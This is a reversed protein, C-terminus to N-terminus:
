VIKNLPTEDECNRSIRYCHKLLDQLQVIKQQAQQDAVSMTLLDESALIILKKRARTISVNLREPQFYFDIINALFSVDNSVLSLLIVDREQGQMREVTDVVIETANDLERLLARKILNGQARFPTVIGIEKASIGQKILQQIILITSDIQESNTLSYSRIADDLICVLAQEPNLATELWTEGATPPTLCLQRHAISKDAVLEGNYYTNSVWTTLAQNMRYTTTLLSDFGRGQLLGFISYDKHNAGVTQLVPPLQKHDGFFLYRKAQLMAMLALPVTVQSAEDIILVDFDVRKLRQTMCAFPTAGVLYGQDTQSLEWDHFQEVCDFPLDNARNLRGVKVMPLDPALQYIASLAHNIATHTLASIMVREGREVLEKALAALVRTKGTGPPGQVLWTVNTNLASAYAEAQADNLGEQIAATHDQEWQEINLIKSRLTGVLLPLICRQGIPESAVRELAAHHYQSMDLTDQDLTWGDKREQIATKDLYSSSLRMSHEDIAEITLTQSGFDLPDNQSLCVMDGERFVSQNQDCTFIIESASPFSHLQLHAIAKGLQIRKALPKEWLEHLQAYTQQNEADILQEFRNLFSKYNKNDSSM